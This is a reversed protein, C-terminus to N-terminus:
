PDLPQSLVELKELKQQTFPARPFPRTGQGMELHQYSDCEPDCDKIEGSCDPDKFSCYPVFFRHDELIPLYPVNIKSKLGDSKKRGM